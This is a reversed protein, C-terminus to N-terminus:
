EAVAITRPVLGAGVPEGTGDGDGVFAGVVAGVALGVAVAAGAVTPVTTPRFLEVCTFMMDVDHPLEYMLTLKVDDVGTVYL